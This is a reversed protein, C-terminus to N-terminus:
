TIVIVCEIPSFEFIKSSHYLKSHHILVSCAAAHARDLYLANFISLILLALNDVIEIQHYSDVVVVM